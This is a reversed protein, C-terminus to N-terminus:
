RAPAPSKAAGEKKPSPLNAVRKRAAAEEALKKKQEETLLQYREWEATKQEKGLGKARSYSERAVHREDPTLKSWERMRVQLRAQQEPNLGAFKGSIALWKKKQLADMDDWEDALPLLAQRDLAGAKKRRRM